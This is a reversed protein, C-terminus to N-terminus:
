NKKNKSKWLFINGNKDLNKLRKTISQDDVILPYKERMDRLFEAKYGRKSFRDKVRIAEIEILNLIEQKPDLEIGRLAANRATETRANKREHEILPEFYNSYDYKFMARKHKLLYIFTDILKNVDPTMAPDNAASELADLLVKEAKENHCNARSGEHFWKSLLYGYIRYADYLKYLEPPVPPKTAFKNLVQIAEPLVKDKHENFWEIFKEEIDYEQPESEKSYEEFGKKLKKRDDILKTFKTFNVTM